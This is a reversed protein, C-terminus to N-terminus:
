GFSAIDRLKEPHTILIRRARGMQIVGHDKLDSLARIVTETATGVMGALDERAIDIGEHTSDQILGARQLKILMLALRKRVPSYALNVLQEQADILDTSILSIFKKSVEKNEQLLHIFDTKPIRYIESDELILATELYIGRPNLLSLPGVFDGEQSIGTILEKGGETSKYTKILGKKIYYLFNAANGEMFLLDKQRYVKSYYTREIYDLNLFAAAHEMFANFGSMDRSFEKQLFDHRRLRSGIADLLEQEEFPKTLYDDAGLNMGKRVDSKNAKASLFIFPIGATRSNSQLAELVQYGDMGPMMIDCIILDPYFSMAKDIGAAGDASTQVRHGSLELLDATNERVDENDEIILIKRM